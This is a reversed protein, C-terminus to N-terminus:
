FRATSVPKRPIIPWRGRRHQGSKAGSHRLCRNPENQDPRTIAQWATGGPTPAGPESQHRV